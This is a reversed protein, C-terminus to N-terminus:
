SRLNPESQHLVPLTVFSGYPRTRRKWNLATNGNGQRCISLSWHNEKHRFLAFLSMSTVSLSVSVDIAITVYHLPNVFYIFIDPVRESGGSMDMRSPRERTQVSKVSWSKFLSLGSCEVGGDPWFFPNLKEFLGPKFIRHEVRGFSQSVSLDHKRGPRSGIGLGVIFSRRSLSNSYPPRRM